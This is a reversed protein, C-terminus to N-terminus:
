PTKHPNLDDLYKLAFDEKKVYEYFLEREELPWNQIIPVLKTINESNQEELLYIAPLWAFKITGVVKYKIESESGVINLMKDLVLQSSNARRAFLPLLKIREFPMLEEYRNILDFNNLGSLKHRLNM